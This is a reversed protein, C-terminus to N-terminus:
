AIVAWDFTVADEGDSAVDFDNVATATTWVESAEPGATLGDTTYTLQTMSKPQLLVKYSGLGLGHVVNVTSNFGSPVTDTGSALITGGGLLDGLVDNGIALQSEWSGTNFIIPAYQSSPAAAAETVLFQVPSSSDEFVGDVYGYIYPNTFGSVDITVNSEIRVMIGAERNPEAPDLALGVSIFDGASLTVDVGANESVFELGRLRSSRGVILANQEVFTNSRYVARLRVHKQFGSTLLTPNAM